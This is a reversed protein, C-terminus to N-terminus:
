PAVIPVSRRAVLQGQDDTVTVELAGRDSPKLTNYAWTRWSWSKGIRLTVETRVAGGVRFTVRVCRERGSRNRLTLHTYLRGGPALTRVKDRADRGEIGSALVLRLLQMPKLAPDLPACAAGADEQDPTDDVTEPAVDPEDDV